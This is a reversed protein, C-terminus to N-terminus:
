RQHLLNKRAHLTQIDDANRLNYNTTEQIIPPVRNLLYNPAIGNVIKYFIILKHKNRRNELSEWGLDSLLKEISCLKTASTIIRSAKLSSRPITEHM